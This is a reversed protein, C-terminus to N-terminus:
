SIELHECKRDDMPVALQELQQASMTEALFVVAKEIGSWHTTRAQLPDRALASAGRV